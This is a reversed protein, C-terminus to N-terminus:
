KGASEGGAQRAALAFLVKLARVDADSATVAMTVKLATRNWGVMHRYYDPASGLTAATITDIRVTTSGEGSCVQYVAGGATAADDDGAAAAKAKKLPGKLAGARMAAALADVTYVSIVGDRLDELAFIQRRYKGDPVFFQVARQGATQVGFQRATQAAQQDSSGTPQAAATSLLCALRKWLSAHAPSSEAECVAVHREIAQRDRQGMKALLGEYNSEETAGDAVPMFSDLRHM